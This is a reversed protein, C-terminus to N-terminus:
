KVIENSTKSIINKHLIETVEVELKSSDMRILSPEQQLRSSLPRLRAPKKLGESSAGTKLIYQMLVSKAEKIENKQANYIQSMEALEFEITADIEEKKKNDEVLRDRKQKCEINSLKRRLLDTYKEKIDTGKYIEENLLLNAKHTDEERKDQIKWFVKEKRQLSEKMEELTRNVAFGELTELTIGPGFRKEMEVNCKKNLFHIDKKFDKCSNTLGEYVNKAEKYKNKMKNKEYKLQETRQQLSTLTDEPFALLKDETTQAQSLRDGELYRFDHMEVIVLQDLANLQLQKNMMFKHLNEQADLLTKEKASSITKLNSLERGINDELRREASLGAEANHRKNRFDKILKFTEMDLDDPKNNVEDNDSVNDGPKIVITYTADVGTELAIDAYCDETLLAPPKKNYLDWLYDAHKNDSLEREVTEDITRKQEKFTEVNMQKSKLQKEVGELKDNIKHLNNGYMMVNAKLEAELEQDQDIVKHEEFLFILSLEAFKLRSELEVKKVVTEFLEDDFSQMISRMENVKERQKHKFRVLNVEELSSEFESKEICFDKVMDSEDEELTLHGTRYNSFISEPPRSKENKSQGLQGSVSSRRSSFSFQRSMKKGVISARSSRRSGVNQRGHTKNDDNLLKTKMKEVDSQDISFIDIDQEDIDFQPISPVPIRDEPELNDQVDIIEKYIDELQAIVKRKQKQLELIKGNFMRKEHYIAKVIRNMNESMEKPKVNKNTRYHRSTKRKFDGINERAQQIEEILTPDEDSERPKRSYLDDWERKRHLKRERREEQKNLAKLIRENTIKVESKSRSANTLSSSINSEAADMTDSYTSADGIGNALKPTKPTFTEIINSVKVEEYEDSYLDELKLHALRFTSLDQRSLFGKVSVKNFELPDFYKQKLNTLLRVAEDTERKFSKKTNELDEDICKVIEKFTYETMRFMDKSLKFERPLAENRILLKKFDRKLNSVDKQIKMIKEEVDKSDQEEKIKKNMDEICLHNPDEIDHVNEFGSSDFVRGQFEGKMQGWSSKKKVESPLIDTTSNFVFLTGDMGSIILKSDMLLLDSIRGKESDSVAQMWAAENQSKTLDLIQLFGDSFGCIILSKKIPPLIRSLKSDSAPTDIVVKELVSYSDKEKKITHFLVVNGHQSAFQINGDENFWLTILDLSTKGCLSAAKFEMCQFMERDLLTSQDSELPLTSLDLFYFTGDLMGVLLIPAKEPSFDIATIPNDFQFYGIPNIKLFTKNKELSYMYVTNDECTTATISNHTKIAIKAISERHPKIAQLLKMTTSLSKVTDLLNGEATAAMIYYLRLVGDNFGILVHTGTHDLKVPIWSMCTVSCHYKVSNTLINRKLNYASIRGDVGGSILISQTPNTALCTVGGAHCQLIKEPKRMTLSFSLDVRWIGGGADQIYWFTEEGTSPIKSRSISQLIADPAVQVENIPDLLFFSDERELNMGEAQQISELDWVRIWGDQGISILEGEAVVFQLVSGNHCASMDRRKIEVKVMGDFWLLLSGWTSGSLVKGDSLQIFADINSLQRRGFKGPVKDM